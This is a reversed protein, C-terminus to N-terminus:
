DLTKMKELMAIIRDLEENRDSSKPLSIISIECEPFLVAYRQLVAKLLREIEGGDAKAIEEILDFM